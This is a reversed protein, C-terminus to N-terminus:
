RRGEENSFYSALSAAAREARSRRWDLAPIHKAGHPQNDTYPIEASYGMDVAPRRPKRIVHGGKNRLEGGARRVAKCVTVPDIGYRKGLTITSDGDEYERRILADLAPTLKPKSM